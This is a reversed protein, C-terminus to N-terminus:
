YLNISFNLFYITLKKRILNLKFYLVDFESYEVLGFAMKHSVEVSQWYEDPVYSTQILMANVIRFALLGFFLAQQSTLLVHIM